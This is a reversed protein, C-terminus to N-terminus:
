KPSCRAAKRSAGSQLRAIPMRPLRTISVFPGSPIKSRMLLPAQQRLAVTLHAMSLARLDPQYSCIRHLRRTDQRWRLRSCRDM